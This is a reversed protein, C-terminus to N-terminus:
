KQFSFSRLKKQSSLTYNKLSKILEDFEATTAVIIEDIGLLDGNKIKAVVKAESKSLTLLYSKSKRHVYKLSIAELDAQKYRERLSTKASISIPGCETSYLIFDFFVNPVFVVKAQVYIPSLGNLLMATALIAEFVGGNLSNSKQPYSEYKAWMANVFESPISFDNISVNDLLFAFVEADKNGLTVVGVRTLFDLHNQNDM